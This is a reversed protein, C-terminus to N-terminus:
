DAKTTVPLTKRLGVPMSWKKQDNNDALRNQKAARDAAVLVMIILFTLTAGGVLFLPLNNVRRVGSRTSAVGPSNAPSLSDKDENETSNQQM